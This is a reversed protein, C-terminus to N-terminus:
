RWDLTPEPTGEAVRIGLRGGGIAAGACPPMM